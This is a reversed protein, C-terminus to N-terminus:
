IRLVLSPRVSSSEALPPAHTPGAPQRDRMALLSPSFLLAAYAKPVPNTHVRSGTLSARPGAFQQCCDPGLLRDARFHSSSTGAEVSSQAHHAVAAHQHGAREQVPAPPQHQVTHATASARSETSATPAVCVAECVAAVAPGGALLVILWAAAIQGFRTVGQTYRPILM